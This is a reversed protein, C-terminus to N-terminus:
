AMPRREFAGFSVAQEIFAKLEAPPHHCFRAAFQPWTFSTQAFAWRAADSILGAPVQRTGIHLVSGSLPQDLWCALATRAFYETPAPGPAAPTPSALTRQRVAIDELMGPTDVMEALTAAIRGLQERLAERDQGPALYERMVRDSLAMERLLDIVAVGYLPQVSFTLHLSRETSALADHYVGRPIYLLDGPRLTVEMAVKGKTREIYGTERTLTAEVPADEAGEYIRWTKEGECHVAFVEHPDCHSAFGQVGRRSAYLNVTAKAGFHQGLVQCMRRLASDQDEMGDIVLTAGVGMLTEILAPDPRSDNGQSFERSVTFHAPDIGRGNMVLKITEQTWRAPENLMDGLRALSMLGARASGPADTDHRIHLPKRGYYEDLFRQEGFPALLAAFDFPQPEM